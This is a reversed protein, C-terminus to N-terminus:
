RRGGEPRVSHTTATTATTATAMLEAVEDPSAAGLLACMQGLLGRIERHRQYIASRVSAGLVDGGGGGDGCAHMAAGAFTSAARAADDAMARLAARSSADLRSGLTLPALQSGLSLPPSPDTPPRTM